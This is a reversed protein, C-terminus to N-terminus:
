SIGNKGPRKTRVLSNSVNPLTSYRLKEAGYRYFLVAKANPM